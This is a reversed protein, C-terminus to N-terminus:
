PLFFAESEGPSIPQPIHLRSEFHLAQRVVVSEFLSNFIENQGDPALLFNDLEEWTLWPPMEENLYSLCTVFCDGKGETLVNCFMVNHAQHTHEMFM